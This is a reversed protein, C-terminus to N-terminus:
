TLFGLFNDRSITKHEAEPYAGTWAASVNRKKGGWKFEFGYLKGDREEVLDLEKKDYTRWFYMNAYDRRYTNKKMRESMLFNEWLMGIDDRTDIANFNQIIANRIGNDLFFYRATKTVEKRLNRSFGRVKKIVFTKELLDLHREVTQKAIGLAGALESLSVQRGIQFAVLKLLDFIKDANRLNELELIDKFLYSDRLTVLYEKKDSVNPLTLIEPYCGFVLYEELREVVSMGGFQGTLELVSLPFLQAVRHRGTLPEGIQNSLEFSSSGCAILNLGPLHDILIKLGQGVNEIHQAEDIFVLDYETFASVIRQVNESQLVERLPRDEGSGAYYRGKFTKLFNRILSTKGTRRPGYLVLVKGPSLLHPLAAEYYRTLWNM